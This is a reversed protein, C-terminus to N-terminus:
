EAKPNEEKAEKKFIKNLLGNIKENFSEPLAPVKIALTPFICACVVLGALVMRLFQYAGAIRDQATILDNANCACYIGRVFHYIFGVFAIAALVYLVIKLIRLFLKM